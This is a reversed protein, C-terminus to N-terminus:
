GYMLESDVHKFDDTVASVRSLFEQDTSAKEMLKIKEEMEM